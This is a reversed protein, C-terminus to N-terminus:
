VAMIENLHDELESKYKKYEELEASLETKKKYIKEPSELLEKYTYPETTLITNIAKELKLIKEGIDPVNINLSDIGINNLAKNILVELDRLEEIDNCNYALMVRQYLDYLEPYQETLPSIDPHLIKAIRRYIKKIELSDSISIPKRHSAAGFAKIMDELQKYYASMQSSVYSEMASVDVSEGRNIVAQCYAIKKKLSICEIKTAFVENILEGFENIYDQQYTFAEKGLQEKQLLLEEYRGYDGVAVKIIDM